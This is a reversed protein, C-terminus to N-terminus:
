EEYIDGPTNVALKSQIKVSAKAHVPIRSFDHGFRGSAIADSIAELGDSKAQRLRQVAQNGITRQLPLISNVERCQGVHARGPLPSKSSETKQTAKPKEAFTRM